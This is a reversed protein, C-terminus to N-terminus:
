GAYFWALMEKLTDFKIVDLKRSLAQRISEKVSFSIHRYETFRNVFGFEKVRFPMMIYKEADQMGYLSYEDVDDILVTNTESKNIVLKM